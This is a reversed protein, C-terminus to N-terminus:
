AFDRVHGGQQNVVGVGNGREIVCPLFKAVGGNQDPVVANFGNAWRLVESVQETNEPEVVVHPCFHFDETHDRAARALSEADLKIILRESFTEQFSIACFLLPWNDKNIKSGISSM